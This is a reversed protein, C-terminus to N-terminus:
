PQILPCNTTCKVPSNGNTSKRVGKRTVKKVVAKKPQAPDESFVKAAAQSSFKTKAFTQSPLSLSLVFLGLILFTTSRM